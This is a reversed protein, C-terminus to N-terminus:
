QYPRICERRLLLVGDDEVGRKAVQTARVRTAQQAVADVGLAGRLNKGGVAVVEVCAFRGNRDVAEAVAAGIIKGRREGWVREDGEEM